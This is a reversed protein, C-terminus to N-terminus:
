SARNHVSLRDQSFITKDGFCVSSAFSTNKIITWRRIIQKFNLKGEYNEYSMLLWHITRIFAFNKGEYAKM